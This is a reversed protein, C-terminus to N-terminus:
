RYVWVPTGVPMLNAAWMFDIAANSVRACGHSAPYPPISPSGHIAYGGTFYRPRWLVGLPSRDLGNVSRYIAFHGEPTHAVARVGGSFYVADTGTSTNFTFLPQGDLVIMLLQRTKDLEVTYGFGTRPTPRVANELAAREAPGVTGQRPLGAAKELAYVAQRTVETLRGDIPTWYGLDNLRHQLDLVTPGFPGRPLPPPGMALVYGASGSVPAGIGLVGKGNPVQGVGSGMFGASGYSFIGGDAAALWYGGGGPSAAMGVVPSRLPAGGTSGFFGASGYSFIGGDAAALWYGAGGPVAAMGVIPRVLAVGGTSGFFGASGYSFIGGDSAVLWYGAGDPAAAMGVIPRSLPLAAASGFFHASGFAFVGGDSAVLWYGAGDPAAAMGVIPRALRTGGVSGFFGASGYSFIGGDAAALWYGGGGPVAAVAVIPSALPQGQTSGQFPVGGFALVTGDGAGGDAAALDAGVAGFLAAATVVAVALALLRSRM